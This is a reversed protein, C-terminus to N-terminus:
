QDILTENVINEVLNGPEAVQKPQTQNEVDLKTKIGFLGFFIQFFGPKKPIRANELCFHSSSIKVSNLNPNISSPVLNNSSSDVNNSSPDINPFNLDTKPFGSYANFSNSDVKKDGLYKQSIEKM